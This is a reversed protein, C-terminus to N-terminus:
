NRVTLIKAKNITDEDAMSLIKNCLSIIENYCNQGDLAFRCSNKFHESVDPSSNCQIVFRYSERVRQIDDELDDSISLFRIAYYCDFIEVKLQSM